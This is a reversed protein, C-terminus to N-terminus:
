FLLKIQNDILKESSIGGTLSPQLADELQEVVKEELREDLSAFIATGHGLRAIGRVM